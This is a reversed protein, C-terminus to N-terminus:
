ESGLWSLLTEMEKRTFPDPIEVQVKRNKIKNMPNKSIVNNKVAV